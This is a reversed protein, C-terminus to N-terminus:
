IDRLRLETQFLTEGFEKKYNDRFTIVSDYGLMYPVECALYGEELLERAKYIKAKTIYQKATLGEYKIFADRIAQDEYSFNKEIDKILIREEINEHVYAKIKEFTEFTM